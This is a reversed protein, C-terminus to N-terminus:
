SQLITSRRRCMNCSVALCKETTFNISKFIDISQMTKFYIKLHFSITVFRISEFALVCAGNVCSVRNILKSRFTWNKMHFSWKFFEILVYAVFRMCMAHITHTHTRTHKTYHKWPEVRRKARKRQGKNFAAYINRLYIHMSRQRRRCRYENTVKFLLEISILKHSRCCCYTIVWCVHFAMQLNHTKHTRCILPAMFFYYIENM